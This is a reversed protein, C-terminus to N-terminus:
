AKLRSRAAGNKCNLKKMVMEATILQGEIVCESKNYAIIPKLLSKEDSCKNLRYKATTNSCNLIEMLEKVTYSKGEIRDWEEM